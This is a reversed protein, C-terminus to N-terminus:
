KRFLNCEYHTVFIPYFSLSPHRHVLRLTFTSHTEKRGLFDRVLFAVDCFFMKWKGNEMKSHNKKQTNAPTGTKKQIRKLCKAKDNRCNVETVGWPCWVCDHVQVLIYLGTPFQCTYFFYTAGFTRLAFKGM